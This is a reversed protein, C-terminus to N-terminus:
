AIRRHDVPPKRQAGMVGHGRTSYITLSAECEGAQASPVSPFWAHKVAGVVALPTSM